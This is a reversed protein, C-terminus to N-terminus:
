DFKLIRLSHRSLEIGSDWKRYQFCFAQLVTQGQGHQRCEAVIGIM